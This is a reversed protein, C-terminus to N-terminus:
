NKIPFFLSEEHHYPEGRTISAARYLQEAFIARIIQHSFTMKSLSLAFNAREYVERSFGYAGGIVFVLRKATLQQQELWQAFEVSTFEKGKDDLLVMFDDNKIIKLLDNGERQRVVNIPLNGKKTPVIEIEIAYNKIRKLYDATIENINNSLTKGIYIINTKM